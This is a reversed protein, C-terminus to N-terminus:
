SDNNFPPYKNEWVNYFSKIPFTIVDFTDTPFTESPRGNKITILDELGVKKRKAFKLNYNPIEIDAKVRMILIFLQM